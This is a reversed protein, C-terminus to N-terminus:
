RGANTKPPGFSVVGKVESQARRVTLTATLTSTTGTLVLLEGLRLGAAIALKALPALREGDIAILLTQLQEATLTKAEGSDYKPPAVYRCTNDSIHRRKTAVNLARRLTAYCKQSVRDSKGVARLRAVYKEIHDASLRSLPTAAIPDSAIHNRVTAEYDAYASTRLSTKVHHELWDNLTQRMSGRVVGVTTQRKLEELKDRTAAQTRGYVTRSLVKGREDRRITLKACWRADKRKSITGKSNSRRRGM